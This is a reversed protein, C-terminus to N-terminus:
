GRLEDIFCTTIEKPRTIAGGGVIRAVGLKQVKKAQNPDHIIM